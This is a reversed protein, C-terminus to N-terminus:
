WGPAMVERGCYVTGNFHSDFHLTQGMVKERSYKVVASLLATSM